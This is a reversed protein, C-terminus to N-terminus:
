INGLLMQPAHNWRIDQTKTMLMLRHGCNLDDIKQPTQVAKIGIKTEQATQENM